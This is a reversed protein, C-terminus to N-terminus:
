QKKEPERHPDGQQPQAQAHTKEHKRLEGETKFTAGCVNCKYPDGKRKDQAM